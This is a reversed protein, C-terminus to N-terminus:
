RRRAEGARVPKPLFIWGRRLPVIRHRFAMIADWKDVPFEEIPFVHQVGANNVLVDLRGFTKEALTIM